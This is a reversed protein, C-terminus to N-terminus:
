RGRKLAVRRFGWPCSLMSPLQPAIKRNWWQTSCGARLVSTGTDLLEPLCDRSTDGSPAPHPVECEEM